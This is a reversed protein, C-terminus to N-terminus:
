KTFGKDGCTEAGSRALSVEYHGNACRYCMVTATQTGIISEHTVNVRFIGIMTNQSDQDRLVDSLVPHGVHTNPSRYNSAYVGGRATQAGILGCANALNQDDQSWTAIKEHVTEANAACTFLCILASFIVKM